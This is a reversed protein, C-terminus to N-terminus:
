RRWANSIDARYSQYAGERADSTSNRDQQRDPVCQLEDNPGRRLHGPAGNITCIDGERQGIIEGSGAGTPTTQWADSIQQIYDSRIQARADSMSADDSFVFGPRCGAPGGLGDHLRSFHQRVVRQNSDMMSIPVRFRRGAKLVHRGDILEFDDDDDFNVRQM